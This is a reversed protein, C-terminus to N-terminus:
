SNMGLDSKALIKKMIIDIVKNMPHEELSLFSFLVANKSPFPLLPPKKLALEFLFGM